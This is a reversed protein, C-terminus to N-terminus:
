RSRGLMTTLLAALLTADSMSEDFGQITIEGRRVRQVIKDLADAARRALSDPSHGTLM